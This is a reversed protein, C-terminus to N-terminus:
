AVLRPAVTRGAKHISFVKVEERDSDAYESQKGEEPDYAALRWRHGSTGFVGAQSGFRRALSAPPTV